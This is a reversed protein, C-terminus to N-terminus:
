TLDAGNSTAANRELAIRKLADRRALTKRAEALLATLDARVKDPNLYAVKRGTVRDTFGDAASDAELARLLKDNGRKADELAREKLTEKAFPRAQEVLAAFESSRQVHDYFDSASVSLEARVQEILGCDVYRRCFQRELEATWPFADANTIRPPPTYKPISLDCELKAMATDLATDHSRRGAILAATSGVAQAAATLDRHEAYSSLFRKDASSPEPPAPPAVPAAAQTVAPGASDKTLTRFEQVRSKPYIAPKGEKVRVCDSCIKPNSTSRAAMHGYRCAAGTWYLSWGRAQSEALPVFRTPVFNRMDPHGRETLPVGLAETVDAIPPYTPAEAIPQTNKPM